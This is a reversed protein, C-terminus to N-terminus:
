SYNVPFRFRSIMRGDHQDRLRRSARGFFNLVCVAIEPRVADSKACKEMGEVDGHGRGHVCPRDIILWKRFFLSFLLLPFSSLFVVSGPPGSACPEHACVCM